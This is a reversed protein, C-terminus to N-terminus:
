IAAQIFLCSHKRFPNSRFINQCPYHSDFALDLMIHFARFHYNIISEISIPLNLAVDSYYSYKDFKDFFRTLKILFLLM